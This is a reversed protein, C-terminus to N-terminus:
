DFEGKASHFPSLFTFRFHSSLSLTLCDVGHPTIEWDMLCMVCRQKKTGDGKCENIILFLAINFLFQSSTEPFLQIFSASTTLVTNSRANFGSQLIKCAIQSIYFLKWKRRCIFHSREVLFFSPEYIPFIAHEENSLLRPWYFMGGGQLYFFCMELVRKGKPHHLSLSLYTSVLGRLSM